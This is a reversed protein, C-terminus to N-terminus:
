PRRGARWMSSASFRDSRSQWFRVAALCTQVRAAAPHDALLMAGYPSLCPDSVFIEFLHRRRKAFQCDPQSVVILLEGLDVRNTCQRVVTRRTTEAAVLRGLRKGLDQGDASILRLGNTEPDQRHAM